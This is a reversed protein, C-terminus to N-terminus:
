LVPPTSQKLHLLVTPRCYPCRRVLGAAEDAIPDDLFTIPAGLHGELVRVLPRLSLAEVRVGKPRGLHSLLVLRAGNERLYKITPLSARIRTDDTVKGDQIPVNFDCRVVATQGSLYQGQLDALTLKSM